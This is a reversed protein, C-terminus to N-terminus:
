ASLLVEILAAVSVEAHDKFQQLRQSLEQLKGTVDAATARASLPPCGFDASHNNSAAGDDGDGSDYYDDYDGHLNLVVPFELGTASAGGRVGGAPGDSGDGGSSSGGGGGPPSATAQWHVLSNFHSATADGPLDAPSAMLGTASRDAAFPSFASCARPAHLGITTVAAAGPIFIQKGSRQQHAALQRNNSTRDIASRNRTAAAPVFPSLTPSRVGALRDLQPSAIGMDPMGSGQAATTGIMDANTQATAAGQHSGEASTAARKLQEIQAHLMAARLYQQQDAALEKQRELELVVVSADARSSLGAAQVTIGAAQQAPGEKASGNIPGSDHLVSWASSTASSSMAAPVQPPLRKLM